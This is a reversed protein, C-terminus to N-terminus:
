RKFCAVLQKGHHSKQLSPRESKCQDDAHPCLTSFVCGPPPNMPSPIDGYLTFREKHKELEPDPLPVASLLSRTYPHQADYALEDATGIEMVKGLYMVMIRDSIHKVVSLNHAVFIITLHLRQQLERLLNIVQAQISVDLASVPEDCVLIEPELILARAIGVRQCQGGSFQHPYRNIQKPSLGVLTMYKEVKAKRTASNMEPFHVKLPEAIINGITIRPNLSAYPDQLVIQIKKRIPQWKRRRHKLDILNIDNWIVEGSAYNNLGLIARLLTSKGCGSEGVVGLVEGKRVKFDIGNVARVYKKEQWPWSGKVPFNVALNKVDLVIDNHM